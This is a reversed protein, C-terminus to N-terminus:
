GLYLTTGGGGGVRGPNMQMYVCQTLSMENIALEM